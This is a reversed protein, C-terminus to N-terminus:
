KENENEQQASSEYSCGCKTCKSERDRGGDETWHHACERGQQAIAKYNRAKEVLTFLVGYEMAYEGHLINEAEKIADAYLSLQEIYHKADQRLRECEAELERNREQLRSLEADVTIARDRAAEDLRCELLENHPYKGSYSDMQIAMGQSLVNRMFSWANFESM